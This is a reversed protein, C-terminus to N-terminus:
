FMKRGEDAAWRLRTLATKRAPINCGPNDCYRDIAGVLQRVMRELEVTRDLNNPVESGGQLSPVATSTTSCSHAGVWPKGCISCINM